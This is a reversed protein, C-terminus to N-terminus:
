YYPRRPNNLPNPRFRYALMMRKRYADFEDDEKSLGDPREIGIGRGDVSVNGKNVPNLIGQSEPGLGEGEQWGLKQLMQYGINECTIKFDKYDSFDPTRGEKLAKFTEMFRELEDPPLFDGIHHKGKGAETLAEAWEKTADMEATRNKHEWTGIEDTEEDSDYEYKPKVKVGPLEAMLAAEQAKKQALILEYMMNIERQERIQEIQEANMTDSGVMRRSFEQLTVTHVHVPQAKEEEPGWRSRRKRKQGKPVDETKVGRAVDIKFMFYKYESSEEDFLFKFVPDNKHDERLQNLAHDGNQGVYMALNDILERTENEPPSVQEDEFVNSTTMSEKKFEIKKMALSIGKSDKVDKAPSDGETPIAPDYDGESFSSDTKSFPDYEEGQKGRETGSGYNNISQSNSSPGPGYEGVTEQKIELKKVLVPGYDGMVTTFESQNDVPEPKIMGPPPAAFQMNPPGPPHPNPILPPAQNVVPPAQSYVVTSQSAFPLPTQSVFPPAQSGIPPAQSLLPPPQHLFTPPQSHNVPPMMPQNQAPPPVSVDLVQPPTAIVQPPGVTEPPPVTFQQQHVAHPPAESFTVSTPPPQVHVVSNPAMSVNQRSQAIFIGSSSSIGIQPPGGMSMPPAQSILPQVGMSIPAAVSMTPPALSLPPPPLSMQPPAQTILQVHSVPPPTPAGPVGLPPQPSQALPPQLQVQAQIQPPLQPMGQPPPAVIIQQQVTPPPSTFPGAPQSPPMQLPQQQQQQVQMPSAIIQQPVQTQQLQLPQQIVQVQQLQPQAPGPAQAVQQLPPQAQVQGPPLQQLQILEGPQQVIMQQVQTQSGPLAILQAQSTQIQQQGALQTAALQMQDMTPQSLISVPETVSQQLVLSDQLSLGLASEQTIRRVPSLSRSRDRKRREDKEREYERERRREEGRMREERYLDQRESRGTQSEWRERFQKQMPNEPERVLERTEKGTSRSEHYYRDRERSRDEKWKDRDDRESRSRDQPRNRSMDGSNWTNPSSTGQFWKKSSDDKAAKVDPTKKGSNSSPEEKKNKDSTPTSMKNTAGQQMQKFRELFNGDNVLLNPKPTETAPKKAKEANRVALSKSASIPPQKVSTAAAAEKSKQMQEAMLKAEIARKKEEIIREQDNMQMMKDRYTTVSYGTGGSYSQSVNKNVPRNIRSGADEQPQYGLGATRQGTFKNYGLGRKSM